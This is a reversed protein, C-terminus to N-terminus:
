EAKALIPSWSPYDDLGPSNTINVVNTGDINMTFIDQVNKPDGYYMTFAIKKGDPSWAPHFKSNTDKTLQQVGSGDANMIMVQNAPAKGGIYVLKASDPSWAPSSAYVNEQTIRTPQSGDANMMWIESMEKGQVCYAIKKGDPSWAPEDENWGGETLRFAAVTTDAPVVWLDYYGDRMSQCVINKADPSWSLHWSVAGTKTIQIADLGFMGVSDQPAVLYIQFRSRVERNSSFAILKGDPSWSPFRSWGQSQTLRVPHSGDENMTYIDFNGGRTSEFAIKMTPQGASAGKNGGASKEGKGCSVAFLMLALVILLGWTKGGM